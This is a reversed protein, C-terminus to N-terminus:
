QWPVMLLIQGYSIVDASLGLNLICMLGTYPIGAIEKLCNRLQNLSEEGKYACRLIEKKESGQLDPVWPEKGLELQSIVYPKSVPFGPEMIKVGAWKLASFDDDLFCVSTGPF